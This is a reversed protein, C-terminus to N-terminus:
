TKIIFGTPSSPVSLDAVILSLWIVSNKPQNQTSAENYICPSSSPTSPSHGSSDKTLKKPILSQPFEISIKKFNGEIKKILFEVSHRNV